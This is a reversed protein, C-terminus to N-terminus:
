NGVTASWGGTDGQEFGDEFIVLPIGCVHDVWLEQGGLAFSTIRGTVTVEGGSGAAPQVTIDAGGVTALHLDSMNEANALVGNVILNINGGQDEYLFSAEALGDGIEFHINVNSPSADQGTGGATQSNGVVLQGGTTATGSPYFYFEDLMMLVQSDVFFTGYPITGPYALDEFEVCGSPEGTACVNDIWLEQGGISFSDVTDLVELVALEGDPALFVEIEANGVVQGDLDALSSVNRFDGNVTINVNGGYEGFFLRLDEVPGGFDFALSINNLAMDLGSGGARNDDDVRAFGASTWTGNSWQFESATLVAGGTSFVASVNYTTDVVLDEFDVCDGPALAAAAPQIAVLGMALVAFAPRSWSQVISRCRM